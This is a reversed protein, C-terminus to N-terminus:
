HFQILTLDIGDRPNQTYALRGGDPTVTRSNVPGTVSLPAIEVNKRQAYEFFRLAVYVGRLNQGTYYVGQEVPAFYGLPGRIDEM